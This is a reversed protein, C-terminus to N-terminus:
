KVFKVTRVGASPSTVTAIYAGAPLSEVSFSGEVSAATRLLTGAISYVAVDAKGDFVLADSHSDYAAYAASDAVDEVGSTIRELSIECKTLYLYWAVPKAPRFGIYYRGGDEPISFDIVNEEPYNPTDIHRTDLVTKEEAEPSKALVVEIDEDNYKANYCAAAYMLKYDGKIGRFPPTFAWPQEFGVQLSGDKSTSYSWNKGEDAVMTWIDFTSRDTFDAVYPLSVAAGLKVSSSTVPASELEAFVAKVTYTYTGMPMTGAEADVYGEAAYAGQAVVAEGPNRTVTYVTAAPDVYGGNKGEAAVPDFTVTATEGDEALAVALNTVAKPTDNGVWATSAKAADSTKDGVTVTLEYEYKGPATITEDTWSAQAGVTMGETLSAVPTGDRTIDVRTISELTAGTNDTSPNTWTLVAKLEGAPAAAAELATVAKPVIVMEELKINDVYIDQTNSQGYCHFGILYDGDAEVSIAVKKTEKLASKITEFYLVTTQDEATAGRGITVYLDKYNGENTANSIWTEFDLQYAKGAQLAIRPTVAWADATTGGWYNLASSSYQWDRSGEPGKFITFFLLADRSDFSETYPVSMAGGAVVASSKASTWSTKGNYVTYVAYTYTDMTTISSDVYPLEGQWAEELTVEGSKGATRVIKYSVASVDIYGGHSGVTAPTFTVSVTKGDAGVTAVVNTAYQAETDPGIWPSEFIESTVPSVGEANFPVIRYFYRNAETISKDVYSAAAGPTGGEVTAVLYQDIAGSYSKSDSRYIYAGTISELPAGLNSTSPWTWSLTAELAGQPAATITMDTVAGPYPVVPEISFDKFEMDGMYSNSYTHIAFYYQGDAEPTFSNSCAVTQFWAAKALTENKHLEAVISEANPASLVCIKYKQKDGSYTSANRLQAKVSYSVGGSLSVAPSILWDDAALKKNQTYLACENTANYAWWYPTEDTGDNNADITTWSGFSDADTISVM